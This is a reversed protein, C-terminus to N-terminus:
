GLSRMYCCRHDITTYLINREHVMHAHKAYWVPGVLHDYIRAHHTQNASSPQHHHLSFTFANGNWNGAYAVLLLVDQLFKHPGIWVTFYLKYVIKDFANIRWLRLSQSIVLIKPISILFSNSLLIAGKVNEVCFNTCIRLINWQYTHLDYNWDIYPISHKVIGISPQCKVEFGDSAWVGIGNIDDDAM